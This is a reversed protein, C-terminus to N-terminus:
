SLPLYSIWSDLFLNGSGCRPGVALISNNVHAGYLTAAVFPPSVSSTTLIGRSAVATAAAACVIVNGARRRLDDDPLCSM